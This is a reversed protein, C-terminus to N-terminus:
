RGLSTYARSISRMEEDIDKTVDIWADPVEDGARRMETVVKRVIEKAFGTVERTIHELAAAYMKIQHVLLGFGAVDQSTTMIVQRILPAVDQSLAGHRGDSALDRTIDALKQLREELKMIMSTSDAIAGMISGINKREYSRSFSEFLVDFRLPDKPDGELVEQRLVSLSQAAERLTVMQGAIAVQTPRSVLKLSVTNEYRAAAEHSNLDGRTVVDLVNIKATLSQNIAAIKSGAEVVVGSYPGNNVIDHFMPDGTKLFRKARAYREEDNFVHDIVEQFSRCEKEEGKENRM